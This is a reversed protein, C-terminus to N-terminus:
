STLLMHLAFCVSQTSKDSQRSGLALNSINEEQLLTQVSLNANHFSTVSGVESLHGLTVSPYIYNSSPLTVRPDPNLTMTLPLILYLYLKGEVKLYLRAAVKQYLTM